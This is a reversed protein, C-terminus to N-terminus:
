RSFFVINIKVNLRKKLDCSMFSQFWESACILGPGTAKSVNTFSLVEKAPLSTKVM